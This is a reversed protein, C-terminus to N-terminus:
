ESTVSKTLHRPRDVDTGKLAAVHYALLQMPVAYLIPAVFAPVRPMAVIALAADRFGAAGEADSIVVVRGGCAILERVTAASKEFSADPPAVVIVPLTEDIMAIPGHRIEGASIGEAHIYSVEKLKLAGELAIPFAAGHGVYCVGRADLLTRAIARIAEDQRLAEAVRSPLGALAATLDAAAARDLVGRARGLAIALVALVTLQATFAKTSAIAIEPGAFTPLAAEAERAIASDPVNVIALTHLGAERCVRLAARTDATEGSQSILVALGGAEMPTRRDRFESAADLDVPLRAVDEFWSKAVMAAYFPTGCALLTVRKVAALDFPLPPLSPVQGAADLYRGLTEGIAAPQEHIEKLMFHRYGDTGVRGRM